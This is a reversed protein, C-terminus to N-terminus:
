CLMESISLKPSQPGSSLESRRSIAYNSIQEQKIFKNSLKLYNYYLIKSKNMENSNVTIIVIILMHVFFVFQGYYGNKLLHTLQIAQQRESVSHIKFDKSM